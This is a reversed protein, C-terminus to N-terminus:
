PAWAFHPRYDAWQEATLIRAESFQDHTVDGNTEQVWLDILHENEGALVICSILTHMVTHTPMLGLQWRSSESSFYVQFHSHLAEFSGSFVALFANVFAQAAPLTALALKEMRGRPDRQHIATPTILLEQAFPTMLKRYLGRDPLFILEGTSRLPRTLIAVKKEEAFRAFLGHGKHHGLLRALAEPM